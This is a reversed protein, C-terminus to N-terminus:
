IDNWQEDEQIFYVQLMLSYFQFSPSLFVENQDSGGHDESQAVGTAGVSTNETEEGM